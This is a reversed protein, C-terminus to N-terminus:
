EYQRFFGEIFLIQEALPKLNPSELKFSDYYVRASIKEWKTGNFIMDNVQIDFAGEFAGQIGTHSPTVIIEKKPFEKLLINKIEQANMFVEILGLNEWRLKIRIVMSGVAM